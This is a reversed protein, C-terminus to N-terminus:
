RQMNRSPPAALDSQLQELFRSVGPLAETTVQPNSLSGDVYMQLVQQNVKAVLSKVLPLRTPTRGVEGHFVLKLEQDFNTYGRGYLNVVEGLFDLQDLYIHRGQLRFKVNSKDFATTDASGTRLMKLMGMLLPLEYFNGDRVRVEGQGGLNELQRGSGRLTVDADVRGDFQSKGQLGEVVIRNLDAGVVNLEVGYEPLGRFAVWMDSAVQGDYAVATLRRPAAGQQETAWRGLRCQNDDVWLPGRVNTLHLNGLTVSDLNLEGATAGRAGDYSGTLRISGHLNTLEVGAQLDTQHCDLQVDWAAELPAIPSAARRFDLVGDHVRFSGTPRLQDVLKALPRPLAVLLDRRPTVRDITLGVLRLQWGGDPGFFGQGSTRIATRDHTSRVNELRVEGDHYTIKGEVNDMLYDFFTPKVLASEPCPSIEVRINPKDLGTRHYVDALFDVHGRPRIETWAQQVAPPLAEFLDDNLPTQEGEFHLALESGGEIPELRGRCRVGRRGSSVLDSFTWRNGEATVVGTVGRLPYPFREYNISVDRLDLRLFTQPAKDGAARQLKWQADIRGAPNLSLVVRRPKPDLAEILRSDIEVDRGTIEVWGAAGPRPDVVQGVIRIPQGGGYGTLDIDLRPPQLNEGASYRLTGSGQSLRYRFRDSEFSLRRGAVVVSPKWAVGDFAAQATLDAEGAPLYKDWEVRVAAPLAQYLHRDLPVNVIRLSAALPSRSTWGNRTLSLGAEADGWKGRLSEIRLADHTAHVEGALEAVPRVFQPDEWSGKSVQLHAEWTTPENGRFACRFQATGDIRASLRTQQWRAALQSRIWAQLDDGLEMQELAVSGEIVGTALDIEAAAEARRLRPGAAAGRVTMAAISEAGGAAGGRPELSLDFQELVLPPAQPSAEDTFLIRGAQIAVPPPRFEGTSAGAFVAVNWAGRRSRNLWLQPRLVRVARIQPGKQVIHPLGVDCELTLEEIRLLQQRQGTDAMANCAVDELVIGRGDVLRVSGVRIEVQPLREALYAEVYVRLEDDLHAYLYVSIAAAAVALGAGGLKFLRWCQNIFQGL